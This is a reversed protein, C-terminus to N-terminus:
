NTGVCFFILFLLKKWWDCIFNGGAFFFLNICEIILNTRLHTHCIIELGFSDCRQKRFGFAFKRRKAGKKFFYHVFFDSLNKIRLKKRERETKGVTRKQGSM